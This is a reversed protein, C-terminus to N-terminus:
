LDSHFGVDGGPPLQSKVTKLKMERRQKAQVSAEYPRDHFWVPIMWLQFRTLACCDRYDHRSTSTVHKCNFAWKGMQGVPSGAHLALPHKTETGFYTNHFILLQGALPAVTLNLNPFDTRQAVWANM